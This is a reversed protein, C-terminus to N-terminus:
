EKGRLEQQIRRLHDREKIVKRKDFEKKSKGIGLKVKIFNNKQYLSLPVLHIGSGSLKGILTQIENRHLLLRRSRTPNYDKSDIGQYAPINANVLFAENGLIRAYSQGLEIRGGRISKVEAGTLQVGAEFTEMIHYDHTAKRNPVYLDTNTTQQKM